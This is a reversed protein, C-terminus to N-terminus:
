TQGPREIVVEIADNQRVGRIANPSFRGSRTAIADGLMGILLVLLACILALAASASINPQHTLDVALKGIGYAAFIMVIKLKINLIPVDSAFIGLM